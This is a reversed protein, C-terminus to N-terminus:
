DLLRLATQGDGAVAYSEGLHFTIHADFSAETTAALRARAEETRGEIADLLAVLQVTYPM